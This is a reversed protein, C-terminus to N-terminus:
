PLGGSSTSSPQIAAPMMDLWEGRMASASVMSRLPTCRCNFVSRVASIMRLQEVQRQAVPAVDTQRDVIARGGIQEVAAAHVVLHPGGDREAHGGIM